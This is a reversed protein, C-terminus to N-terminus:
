EEILSPILQPKICIKSKTILKNLADSMIIEIIINDQEKPNQTLLVAANSSKTKRNLSKARYGTVIKLLKKLNTKVKTIGM